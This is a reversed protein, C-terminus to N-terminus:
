MVNSENKRMGTSEMGEMNLYKKQKQALGPLSSYTDFRKYGYLRTDIYATLIKRTHTTCRGRMAHTHLEESDSCIRVAVTFVM